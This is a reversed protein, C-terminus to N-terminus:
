AADPSSLRLPDRRSWPLSLGRRGLRAPRRGVVGMVPLGLLQGLDDISRVRRDVQELLFALGLGLVLGVIIAMAFNVLVRPSSPLTPEFAPNLVAINTQSAQSELNSQNVRQTLTDYAAKAADVDRQLVAAGDRDQKLKLVRTKQADLANRLEGVRQENARSNATVSSAIQGSETALRARVSAVEAQAAKYKPNNPGLTASMQQLAAEKNALDSKLTQVLPNQVLENTAGTQAARSRADMSQAEADSLQTSLQNLRNMEVDFHDDTVAIIQNKQQYTSLASQAKELRDRAAAAQETFYKTYQAAPDRRLDVTTNIYAQAFANAFEAARKANRAKYTISVVNSDKTPKADLGGRLNNGLWALLDGRGGTQEQWAKANVPDQDLKLDKAVRAAVRESNVIDLQTAMFSPQAWAPSVAGAIPDASKVDIVVAATASYIKPALFTAIAAGFVTLALMAVIIRYRAKLGLLLQELTV